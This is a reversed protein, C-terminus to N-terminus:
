LKTAAPRPRAPEMSRAPAKASSDVAEPPPSCSSARCGPTHCRMRSRTTGWRSPWSRHWPTCISTAPRALTAKSKWCSPWSGSCSIITPTCPAKPAAVGGKWAASRRCLPQSPTTTSSAARLAFIVRSIDPDVSHSANAGTVTCMADGPQASRRGLRWRVHSSGLSVGEGDGPRRRDVKPALLMSSQPMKLRASPFISGRSSATARSSM